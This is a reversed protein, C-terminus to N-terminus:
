GGSLEAVDPTRVDFVVHAAGPLPTLYANLEGERLEDTLRRSIVERAWPEDLDDFGLGPNAIIEEVDLTFGLLVGTDIHLRHMGEGYDGFLQGLVCDCTSALDLQDLMISRHWGPLRADLFLAGNHARASLDM